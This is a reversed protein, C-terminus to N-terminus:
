KCSSDILGQSRKSEAERKADDMIEREGNANLSAIRVGSQLTALSTKARECNDAKAKASKEEEAKKKSTEEDETKKKKAELEADKGSLKPASAKLAPQSARGLPSDVAIRSSARVGTGPWKVIDKEPIDNPPARDSFVKRGDKGIWLWQASVTMAFTAGVFAFLVAKSAFKFNMTETYRQRVRM